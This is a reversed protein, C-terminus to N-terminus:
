KLDKRRKLGTSKERGEIWHGMPFEMNKANEHSILGSEDYIVYVNHHKGNDIDTESKLNGVHTQAAVNMKRMFNPYLEIFLSGNIIGAGQLLGTMLANHEVKYLKTGVQGNIERLTSIYDVVKRNGIKFLYFEDFRQLSKLNEFADKFREIVEQKGLLDFLTKNLIDQHPLNWIAFELTRQMGM